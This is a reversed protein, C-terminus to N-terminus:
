KLMYDIEQRLADRYRGPKTDAFMFAESTLNSITDGKVVYLTQGSAKLLKSAARGQESRFNLSIFRIKGEATEDEFYDELVSLTEEEVASCTSCRQQLHFLVIQVADSEPDFSVDNKSKQDVCSSLSIFLVFILSRCKM